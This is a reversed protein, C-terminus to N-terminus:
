FTSVMSEHVDAMMSRAMEGLARDFETENIISSTTGFTGIQNNAPFAKSRNLSASWIKKTDRNRTLEFSCSLSAVYETAAQISKSVQPIWPYKSTQPFLQDATTSSSRTSQANSVTGSLVADAEEQKFVLTLKRHAAIERLMENYLLNEVGPKYTSNKIPAVYVRTVHYKEELQNTSNQFQYGSCGPGLLGVCFFALLPTLRSRNM